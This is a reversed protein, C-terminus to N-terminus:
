DVKAGTDHVLKAWRPTLTALEKALANSSSAVVEFGQDVLQDKVARGQLVEVITTNLREIVETPTGAPAFFGQWSNLEYGVIGAEEMTPIEPAGTSRRASTVALAKLRGSRVHQLAAPLTVILADVHGALLDAVAPAGGKYPVNIFKTGIHAELLGAALHGPSGSGANAMTLSGPAKKAAAVFEKVNIVPLKPGVLLIQPSTIALTIPAFQALAYPVSSYLSPNIILSDWGLLLTYGDPQSKAVHGFAINSGAGPMNEVLITQNLKPGLGHAITRALTDLSGGPAVPVVIRVPKAPWTGKAAVPLALGFAGALGFSSILFRRRQM